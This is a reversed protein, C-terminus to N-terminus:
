MNGALSLERSELGPISAPEEFGPLMDQSVRHVMATTIKTSEQVFGILLCNDCLQNILRPIGGSIRHIERVAGPSFVARAEQGEAAATALRHNIYRGTEEVDFPNLQKAMVIRQRLAEFQSGRIKQRLESQGVLVIQIPKQTSTDLSSLLRLSELADDCLVQAEDVLLVVPRDQDLREMLQQRLRDILDFHEDHQEVNVALAKLIQRVLAGSSDNGPTIQVVTAQDGCRQCVARAVTTKGSGVCGTILVFGKRMRITYEIAALAERHQESAFFFRPDPTNEFPLCKFNYFDLYM